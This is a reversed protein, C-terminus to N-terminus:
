SMWTMPEDVVGQATSGPGLRNRSTPARPRETRRRAWPNSGVWHAGQVGDFPSATRGYRGPTVRTLTVAGNGDACGGVFENPQPARDTPFANVCANAVPTGTRADVLTVSISASPRLRAAVKTTQGGTIRAGTSRSVVHDRDDVTVRFSGAGLPLEVTGSDTCRQAIIFVDEAEACFSATSAGTREDTATVSLTGPRAFAVDV